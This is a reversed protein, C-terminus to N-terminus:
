WTRCCLWAIDVVSKARSVARLSGLTVQAKFYEMFDPKGSSDPAEASKSVIEQFCVPYKFVSFTTLPSTSDLLAFVPLWSPLPLLASNYKILVGPEGDTWVGAKKRLLSVHPMDIFCDNFSCAARLVVAPHFFAETGHKAWEGRFYCDEAGGSRALQLENNV